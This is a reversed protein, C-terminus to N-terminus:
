GPDKGGATSTLEAIDCTEWKQILYPLSNPSRPAPALM